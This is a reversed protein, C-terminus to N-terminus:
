VLHVDVGEWMGVHVVVGEWMGVHVVVGEWVGCTGSCGGVDWM